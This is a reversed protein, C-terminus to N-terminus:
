LDGAPSQQEAGNEVPMSGLRGQTQGLERSVLEAPTPITSFGVTAAFAMAFIPLAILAAILISRGKHRRIDRWAMRLALQHQRKKGGKVPSLDM